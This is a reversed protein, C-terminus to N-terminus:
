PLKINDARSYDCFLGTKKGSRQYRHHRVGVVDGLDLRMISKQSKFVNQAFTEAIGDLSKVICFTPFYDMTIFLMYYRNETVYDRVAEIVGFDADRASPQNTFDHGLIVGDERVKPGWADLDGSTGDYSHDADIYIWDFEGDQYREAAPVSYSRHATITCFPNYWKLKKPLAKALASFQQSDHEDIHPIHGREVQTDWADVLVLSSPRARWLIKRSFKGKYVGIEAVRGGKPLHHLLATRGVTLLCTTTPAILDRYATTSM